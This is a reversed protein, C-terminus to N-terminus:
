HHHNADTRCHPKVVIDITRITLLARHTPM